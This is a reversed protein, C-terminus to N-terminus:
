DLYFVGANIVHVDIRPLYQKMLEVQRQKKEKKIEESAEVPFFHELQELENKLRKEANQAWSLDEQQLQEYLYYELESVAEMWSLAQPPIYRHAPLKTTWKKQNLLANFDEQIEGSCLNIGLSRLADKKQDCIYSVKFNICLWPTYAKSTNFLMSSPKSVEYLRVYRGNKQASRVMQTFRPCGYFFHEGRKDEPFNQPDFVFCLQVPTPEIGMREVYMWYFPRNVLDKDAATSLQTLIYAPTSEIIHCDMEKLYRETFSRLQQQNM